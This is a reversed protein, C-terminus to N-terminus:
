FFNLKSFFKRMSLKAFRIAKDNCFFILFKQFIRFLILFKQINNTTKNKSFNLIKKHKKFMISLRLNNLVVNISTKRFIECKSNKKRKIM